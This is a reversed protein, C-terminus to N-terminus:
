STVSRLDTGIMILLCLVGLAMAGAFIRWAVPWWGFGGTWLISAFAAAAIGWAGIWILSVALYTM